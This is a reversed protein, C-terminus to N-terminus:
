SENEVIGYCDNWPTCFNYSLGNQFQWGMQTNDKTFILTNNEIEFPLEEPMELDYKVVFNNSDRIFVLESHGRKSIALQITWFDRIVHYKEKTELDTLTGLYTRYHMVTEDGSTDEIGILEQSLLNKYIVYNDLNSQYYDEVTLGPVTDLRDWDSQGDQAVILLTDEDFHLQSEQIESEETHSKTSEYTCSTISYFFLLFAIYLKSHIM